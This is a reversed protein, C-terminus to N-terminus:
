PRCTAVAQDLQTELEASEATIGELSSRLADIRGVDEAAVAAALEAQEALAAQQLEVVQLSLDLATRCAERRAKKNGKEKGAQGPAQSVGKGRPRTDPADARGVYFGALFVAALAVLAVVVWGWPLTPRRAPPPPEARDPTERVPETTALEQTADRPQPPQEATM